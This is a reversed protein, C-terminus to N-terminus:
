VWTKDNCFSWKFLNRKKYFVFGSYRLNFLMQPWNEAHFCESERSSNGNDACNSLPLSQNSLTVICFLFCNNLSNAASTAYTYKIGTYTHTHKVNTFARTQRGILFRSLGDPAQNWWFVVQERGRRHVAWFWGNIDSLELFKLFLFM